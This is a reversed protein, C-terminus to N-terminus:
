VEVVQTEPDLVFFIGQSLPGVFALWRCRPKGNVNLPKVVVSALFNICCSAIAVKNGKEKEHKDIFQSSMNFVMCGMKEIKL